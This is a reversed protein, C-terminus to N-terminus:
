QEEGRWSPGTPCGVVALVSATRDKGSACVRKDTYMIGVVGIRLRSEIIFMRISDSRQGARYTELDEILSPGQATLIMPLVLQASVASVVLGVIEDSGRSVIDRSDERIGFIM